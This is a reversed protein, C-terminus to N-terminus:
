KGLHSSSRRTRRRRRTDHPAAAESTGTAADTPTSGGAPDDPATVGAVDPVPRAGSAALDAWLEEERRQMETRGTVVAERLRGGTSRAAHRATRGVGSVLAEPALRATATELTQKLKREAYLSSAAGAVVGTVLWLTRRPM